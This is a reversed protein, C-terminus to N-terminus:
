IAEFIWRKEKVVQATHVDDLRYQVFLSIYLIKQTNDYIFTPLGFVSDTLAIIHMKFWLKQSHFISFIKHQPHYLWESSMPYIIVSKTKVAIWTDCKIGDYVFISIEQVFELKEANVFNYVAM